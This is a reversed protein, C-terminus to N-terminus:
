KEESNDKRPANAQADAKADDKKVGKTVLSGDADVIEIRFENKQPENEIRTERHFVRDFWQLIADSKKYLFVFLLIVLVAFIGWILLGWWTTFPIVAIAYSTTFIALIRSIVIVVLFFVLSMSSLGAIFCLVDDPFVPLVFMASLFLKDKGKIKKLWKDLTEQGVIWAVVRYGAYRGILFAVLSGIMIGILSYVSGLLPGFLFSGAAVTVTSPIPLLVVQSFQLLIFVVAMWSGSRELYAELQQADRIVSIFGTELLAYAIAAAFILLIYAIICFRYIIQKGLYYTIYEVSLLVANLVTGGSLIFIYLVENLTNRQTVVALVFLVQFLAATLALCLIHVVSRKRAPLNKQEMNGKEGILKM